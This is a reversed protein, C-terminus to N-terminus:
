AAELLAPASGALRRVAKSCRARVSGPSTGHRRAVDVGTLGEVYVNALIARTPQDILELEWAAALVAAAGVRDAPSPRVADTRASAQDCLSDFVDGPPWTSVEGRVVWRRERRVSKLTDLALNAAISSPRRQLPYTLIQCWLVAVYDDVGARADRGAMTVMRGLMSQLVVRGALQDFNAVEALLARLAADGDRRVVALVDALTHCGSLVQHRAAWLEADGRLDGDLEQWERNLAEVIGVPQRRATTGLTRSAM